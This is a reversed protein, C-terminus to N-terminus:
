GRHWLLGAGAAALLVALLALGLTDLAPIEVVPLSGVVFATPDDSAATAADDSVGPSENEGDDDADFVFTAQNAITTGPAVDPAITAQITITVSAGAALAGNWTVTRTAPTAVATGATASASVLVLEPPLVDTLEAGPNDTQDADGSNTLVITYVIAGGPQVDGTVSKTATVLVAAPSGVVRTTPDGVAATAPDDSAGASENGGDADADFAFTAQNSIATGPAVGPAVTAQITITVSAGAALAGNWTVTDTAPTDVTGSTASADVLILEPPLVDTLEDGPNDAQDLEGVNTLVITYAVAGDPQFQGSAAKTAALEVMPPPVVTNFAAFGQNEPNPDETPSSVTGSNALVTGPPVSPAVQVVLTFVASGPALTQASCTVIGPDGVAPTACSWGAPEALSQFTTGDPLVDELTVTAADAPGGNEVTITYTLDSGPTVTAPEGIKTASLDAGTPTGVTTSASGSEDGPSVEPTESAVTATNTVLTGLSLDADFAVELTFSASSFAALSAASCSVTGGSGVAPTSCTWGGPESLSLFTTGAPLTDELSVSQADGSAANTLQITYTQTAGAAIPDVSDIKFVQLDAGAVVTTTETASTDEDDPDTTASTVDATNSLVSGPTVGADVVVTLAFAASGVGLSAISCSVTGDSGVAPTSCTWGGPESLSLFTTGAPLTDSWSVDDAADPGDNTVTITYALNSGAAVPDVADVKTVSLDASQALAIGPLIAVLLGACLVLLVQRRPM